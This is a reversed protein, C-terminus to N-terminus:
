TLGCISTMGPSSECIVSQWSLSEVLLSRDIMCRPAYVLIFYHLFVTIVIIGGLLQASLLVAWSQGALSVSVLTMVEMRLSESLQNDISDIDKGFVGLIRGLPQTDFVSMPAHFVNHLAQGHLTNSAFYSLFGLAAGLAFTSLAQTVGLVAYLGEYAGESLPFKEDSWWTLWVSITLM